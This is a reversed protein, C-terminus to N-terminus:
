RDSPDVFEDSALPTAVDTRVMKMVHAARGEWVSAPGVRYFPSKLNGMLVTVM